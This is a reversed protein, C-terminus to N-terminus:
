FMENKDIKGDKNQDMKQFEEEMHDDPIHPCRARLYQCVEDFDLTGNGDM